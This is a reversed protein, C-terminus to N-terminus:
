SFRTLKNYRKILMENLRRRSFFTEWKKKKKQECTVNLYYNMFIWYCIKVKNTLGKPFMTGMSMYQCWFSTM